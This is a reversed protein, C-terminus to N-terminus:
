IFQPYEIGLKTQNPGNRSGVFFVLKQLEITALQEFYNSVETHFVLKKGTCALAFNKKTKSNLYM